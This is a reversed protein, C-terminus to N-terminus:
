CAHKPLFYVHSCQGILAVSLEEVHWIEKAPSGPRTAAHSRERAWVASAADGTVDATQQLVTNIVRRRNIYSRDCCHLVRDGTGNVAWAVYACSKVAPGVIDAVAPGVRVVVCNCHETSRASGRFDMSGETRSLSVARARHGLAM